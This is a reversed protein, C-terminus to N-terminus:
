KPVFTIGSPMGFYIFLILGKDRWVMPSDKRWSASPIGNPVVVGSRDKHVMHDHALLSLNVMDIAISKIVSFAIQPKTDPRLISEINGFGAFCSFRLVLAHATPAFPM